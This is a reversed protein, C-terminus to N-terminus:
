FWCKILFVTRYDATVTTDSCPFFSHMPVDTPLQFTNNLTPTYYYKFYNHVINM